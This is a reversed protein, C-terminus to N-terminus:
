VSKSREVQNEERIIQNNGGGGSDKRQHLSKTAGKQNTESILSM